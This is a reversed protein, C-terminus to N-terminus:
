RADLARPAHIAFPRPRVMPFVIQHGDSMEYRRSADVFGSAACCSDLWGHTQFITAEPSAELVSEWRDRPAPSHVGVLDAQPMAAVHSAPSAVHTAM